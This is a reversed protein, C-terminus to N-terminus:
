NVVGIYESPWQANQEFLFIYIYIYTYIYIYMFSSIICFFFMIKCLVRVMEVGTSQPKLMNGHGVPRHIRGMRMNRFRIGDERDM